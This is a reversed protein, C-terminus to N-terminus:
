PKRSGFERWVGDPGRERTWFGGRGLKGDLVIKDAVEKGLEKRLWDVWEATQPMLERLSGTSKALEEKRGEKRGEM